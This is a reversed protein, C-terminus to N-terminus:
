RGGPEGPERAVRVPEGVGLDFLEPPQEGIEIDSLFLGCGTGQGGNCPMTIRVADYDLEPALYMTVGNPDTPMKVLRLGAVREEVAVAGLPPETPPQILKGGPLTMMPISLWGGGSRWVQHTRGPVSKIGVTDGVAPAPGTDNRTSGDAARILKGFAVKGPALVRMLSASFPVWQGPTDGLPVVAGRPPAPEQSFAARVPRGADSVGVVAAGCMLIALSAFATTKLDGVGDDREAAALETPPELLEPLSPALAGL